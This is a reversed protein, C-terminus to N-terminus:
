SAATTHDGSHDYTVALDITAASASDRIARCEDFLIRQIEGPDTVGSLIGAMRAGLSDLQSAFISGMQNFAGAVTDHDILQNRVKKNDLEVRHRQARVLKLKEEAIDGNEGSTATIKLRNVYWQMSERLAYKGRGERPMGYDNVYRRVMEPTVGMLEALSAASIYCGDLSEVRYNKVTAAKKRAAKKKVAM